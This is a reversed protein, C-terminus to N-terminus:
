TPEGFMLTSNSGAGIACAVDPKVVLLTWSQEKSTMLLYVANPDNTQGIWSETEGYYAKLRDILERRPGCAQDIQMQANAPTSVLWVLLLVFLAVIAGLYFRFEISM